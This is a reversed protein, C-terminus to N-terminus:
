FSIIIQYSDSQFSDQFLRKLPPPLPFLFILIVGGFLRHWRRLIVPLIVPTAAAVAAVTAATAPVATWASIGRRILLSRVAGDNRDDRGGRAGPMM